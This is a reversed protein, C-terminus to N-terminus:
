GPPQDGPDAHALLRAMTYVPSSDHDPQVHTYLETSRVSGHDLLVQVERLPLEKALATGVSHRISHTVLGPVDVGAEAATRQVLDILYDAWLPGGGPRGRYPTTAFLPSLGTLASRDEAGERAARLDLYAHVGAITYPPLPLEGHRSHKARYSLIRHGNRERLDALQADRISGSRLGTAALVRLIADDRAAIEARRSPAAEAQRRSAALLAGLQREALWITKTSGSNDTEREPREVLRAPDTTDIENSLLYRYWNTLAALRQRITEDGTAERALWDDVDARLAGLPDVNNLLCYRLWLTLARHYARATHPQRGKRVAKAILKRSWLETLGRVHYRDGPLPPPLVERVATGLEAAIEQQLVLVPDDDGSVPVLDGM